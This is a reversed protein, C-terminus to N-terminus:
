RRGTSCRPKEKGQDNLNGSIWGVIPHSIGKFTTSREWVLIDSFAPIVSPTGTPRRTRPSARLRRSDYVSIFPSAREDTLL